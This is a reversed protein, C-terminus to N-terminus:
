DQRPDINLGFEEIKRVTRKIFLTFISNKIKPNEKQANKNNMEQRIPTVYKKKNRPKLKQMDKDGVPSTM